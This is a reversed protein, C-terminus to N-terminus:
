APPDDPSSYPDIYVEGPGFDVFTGPPVADGPDAAAVLRQVADEFESAQEPESM